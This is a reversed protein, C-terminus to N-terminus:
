VHKRSIKSNLWQREERTLSCLYIIPAGVAITVVENVVFRLPFAPINRMLLSTSLLVAFPLISRGIVDQFYARLDLGATKQLFPLRIIGIVITVSIYAWMTSIPQCGMQLAIWATPIVMLRITSTLLSYNRIRGIAQNASTLGITLQDLILDALVFRCFITAYAPAEGLWFGLVEPMEVIVPILLSALVLFSYKSEKTAFLLMRKRDGSGEAKMLQPNMSNLISLAIFSVANSMQLAIGYAANFLTGLFHNIVIAIGQTRVVTSGVSYVNWVAFGTLKKMKEKDYEKWRPFHFEEYKAKAYLSYALLNFVSVSLMMVAYVRLSDFALYPILLAGGLKLLADVVEVVSVYIINERAIFLARVPATVFSLLVMLLVMFYVFVAASMRDTPITLIGMMLPELATMALILCLAIVAHLLFANAFISRILEKDNAGHAHSLFRQTCGALSLTIFGLMFVASGVVSYIGYDSHGLASLICRTTYLMLLMYVGSRVYQVITNVIIRKAPEM